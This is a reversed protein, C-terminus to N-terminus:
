GFEISEQDVTNSQPLKGENETRLRAFSLWNAFFHVGDIQQVESLNKMRNLNNPAADLLCIRFEM